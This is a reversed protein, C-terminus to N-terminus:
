MIEVEYIHDCKARSFIKNGISEAMPNIADFYVKKGKYDRKVIPYITKFITMLAKADESYLYAIKLDDNVLREVLIFALVRGKNEVCYCLKKECNDIFSEKDIVTFHDMTLDFIKNIADEDMEFIWDAMYNSKFTKNIIKSNLFDDTEAIYRNHSYDMDVSCRDDDISIFFEYLGNKEDADVLASIPAIGISGVFKLMENILGTAINKRRENPLVYLWDINYQSGDFSLSIAGCINGETDTAGLSVGIGDILNEPLVEFFDEKNNEDIKIYNM